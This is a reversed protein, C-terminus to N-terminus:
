KELKESKKAEKAKHMQYRLMFKMRRMDSDDLLSERPDVSMSSFWRDETPVYGFLTNMRESLDSMHGAGYLVGITSVGDVLEITAALDSLVETNRDVIIVNALEPEIGELMKESNPMTLIEIMLLRATDRIGGGTLVDLMPILKMMGSAIKATFAEGTIAELIAPDAGREVLKAEVEGMTLDSCFWTPSDYSIAELQFELGLIDAMDAQMGKSENADQADKPLVILREIIIDSAGASGGLEGDSGLSWITVIDTESYFKLAVPTGWADVSVDEIFSALRTDVISANLIVDDMTEPMSGVEESSRKAVDAIFELSLTTSEIREKDTAGSPPRSGTPRVSEYLVLDMEELLVTVNEYFMADGIHAVGVLWVDPKDTAEYKRSVIELSVLNENTTKRTWELTPDQVPQVEQLTTAICILSLVGIM